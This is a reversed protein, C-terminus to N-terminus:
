RSLNHNSGKEALEAQAPDDIGWVALELYRQGVNRSGALSLM